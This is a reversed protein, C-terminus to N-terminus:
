PRNHLQQVDGEIKEYDDKLGSEPKKQAVATCSIFYVILFTKM